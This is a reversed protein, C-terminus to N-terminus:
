KNILFKGSTTKRQILDRERNHRSWGSGVFAGGTLTNGLVLVLVLVKLVKLVVLLWHVVSRCSGHRQSVAVVKRVGGSDHTVVVVVLKVSAHVQTSSCGCLHLLLLHLLLLQLLVMQLLLVQLLLHLVVGQLLVVVQLLQLLLLQVVLLNGLM